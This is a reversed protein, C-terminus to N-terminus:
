CQFLRWNVTRLQCQASILLRDWKILYNAPNFIHRRVKKPQNYFGIFYQGFRLLLLFHRCSSLQKVFSGGSASQVPGGGDGSGELCVGTLLGRKGERGWNGM